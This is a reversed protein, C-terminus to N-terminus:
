KVVFECAPLAEGGEGNFARCAVADGPALPGVGEPTGTFIVDGPALTVSRSLRAILEPVSWIMEGLSAHQRSLSNVTLEITGSPLSDLSHLPCLM